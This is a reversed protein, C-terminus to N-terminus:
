AWFNQSFLLYDEPYNSLFVIKNCIFYIMFFIFKTITKKFSFFIQTNQLSNYLSYKVFVTSITFQRLFLFFALLFHTAFDLLFQVCKNNNIIPEQSRRIKNLFFFFFKAWKLIFWSITDSHHYREPGKWFCSIQLRRKKKRSIHIENKKKRKENWKVKRYSFANKARKEVFDRDWVACQCWWNSLMRCPKELYVPFFIFLLM